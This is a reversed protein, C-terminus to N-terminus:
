YCRCYVLMLGPQHPDQALRLVECRIAAGDKYRRQEPNDAPKIVALAQEDPDLGPIELLLSGDPETSFLTGIFRDGIEPLRSFSTILPRAAPPAARPAPPAPRTSSPAASSAAAPSPEVAGAPATQAPRASPAPREAQQAAKPATLIVWDPQTGGLPEITVLLWGLPVAPVQVKNGQQTESVAMVVRRSSPFDQGPRHKGRSLKLEPRRLLEELLGPNERLRAGLTKDDWGTGWGIQLLFQNGNLPTSALKQYNGVLRQINPFNFWSLEQEFRERARRQLVAPLQRLWEAGALKLGRQRAWESFLALDIKLTAELLTQPRLAELEIPIGKGMFGRRNIVTSNIIMLREAPVPTSDSVQLARLLDYNPTHQSPADPQVFLRRELKQAAFKPRDGIENVSIKIGLDEWAIWALATRLAGKLSSGPIYPQDYVDKIFEWLRAGEEKSRPEGQIVYRFFPSGPVFDTPKLLQVPASQALKYTLAADGTDQAELIASENLRWTQGKQVAYDYDKLLERGEGIHVPTMVHLTLKYTAYDPM